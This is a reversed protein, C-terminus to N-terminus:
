WLVLWPMTGKRVRNARALEDLSIGHENCILWATDGAQAVYQLAEGGGGMRKLQKLHSSSFQRLQAKHM